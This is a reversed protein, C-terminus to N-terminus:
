FWQPTFDGGARAGSPIFSRGKRSRSLRASDAAEARGLGLGPLMASLGVLRCRASAASVVSGDVAWSRRWIGLIFGGDHVQDLLRTGVANRQACLRGHICRRHGVWEGRVQLQTFTSCTSTRSIWMCRTGVATGLQTFSDPSECLSTLGGGGKGSTHKRTLNPTEGVERVVKLHSGKRPGTAVVERTGGSRSDPRSQISRPSLHRRRESRTFSWGQSGGAGEGGGGGTVRWLHAFVIQDQASLEIVVPDHAVSPERRLVSIPHTDGM